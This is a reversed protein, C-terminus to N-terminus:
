PDRHAARDPSWPGTRRIARRRRGARPATRRSRPADVLDALRHEVPQRGGLRERLQHAAPQGAAAPEVVQEALDAVPVVLGGPRGARRCGRAPGRAARGPGRASRRASNGSGHSSARSASASSSASGLSVARATRSSM